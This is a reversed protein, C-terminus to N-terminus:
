VFFNSLLSSHTRIERRNPSCSYVLQRDDKKRMNKKRGESIQFKGMKELKKTTEIRSSEVRIQNELEMRSRIVDLRSKTPNKFSASLVPERIFDRPPRHIPKDECLSKSRSINRKALMPYKESLSKSRSNTSQFSEPFDRKASMPYKELFIKEEGIFCRQPLHIPKDGPLSGCSKSQLNGMNDTQPLTPYKKSATETEHTSFIACCWYSSFYYLLSGSVDNTEFNTKCPKPQVHEAGERQSILEAENGHDQRLSSIISCGLTTQDLLSPDCFSNERVSDSLNRINGIVPVCNQLEKTREEMWLGRHEQEIKEQTLIHRAERRSLLQTLPQMAGERARIQSIKHSLLKHDDGRSSLTLMPPTKKMNGTSNYEPHVSTYVSEDGERKEHDFLPSHVVSVIESVTDEGSIDHTNSDSKSALNPSSTSIADRRSLLPTPPQM